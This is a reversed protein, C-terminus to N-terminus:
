GAELCCPGVTALRHHDAISLESAQSALAVAQRSAFEDLRRRHEPNKAWAVQDAFLATVLEGYRQLKLEPRGSHVQSIADRIGDDYATENFLTPTMILARKHHLMPVRGDIDGHWGEATLRYAFGYTLVRDIWGKLIAPFHARIPNPAIFVLTDAAAVKDQQKLVDRPRKKRIMDAIEAESKGRVSRETFWRRPGRHSSMILEHAPDITQLLDLPM